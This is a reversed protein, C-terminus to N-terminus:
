RGVPNCVESGFVAFNPWEENDSRALEAQIQALVHVPIAPAGPM